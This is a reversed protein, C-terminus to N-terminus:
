RRPRGKPRSRRENPKYDEPKCMTLNVRGMSDIEVVRVTVKDGVKVVDEVKEVRRPALQSIHVLGEKGPLMEVFAGFNMIRKVEGTYSKGVEVEQVISLVWDQAKQLNETQLASITVQGDDDIDIEVSCQEIIKRINKGGPGIVEGIKEKPIKFAVIKPAYLSISSRPEAITKAMIELIAQRCENAKRIAQSLIEIAAGTVKLDLQVGTIGDKTGAVKFDMDGYHDEAGLIDTLMVTKGNEEVLGMAIGAVAARVPVGADMLSLSAGCVTAMSSSGNSELIESVIRVTYPFVEEAPLVAQVSREALAGHGIERRGPGRSPKVDGTSFSPFNYHLMFSKYEEEREVDDILQEDQKTGLTVVVLSQTQGRTFLASGHTRPLVGIECFIPRIEDPTRGDLRVGEEVIRRRIDAGVIEEIVYSIAKDQDPYKEQLRAITDKVIEDIANERQAKDRITNTNIVRETALSRIASDFEQPILEGEPMVKPKGAIGILEEQLDVLKKIEVQAMELAEIMEEDKAERASGECMIISDKNGCVVINMTSTGIQSLTPNVVLQGDVKGMRVAGIPGLFPIESLGLACSAGIIGLIDGENELDSSLLFGTIQLENRFNEPFLPRVPRDILRSTLIEKDRPRGERKFFGGPIKGAAYALERYDVTLPLFLDAGERPEKSSVASVMVVTDGYQVLVSGSAQRGVRGTEIRLTRGALDLKVSQM